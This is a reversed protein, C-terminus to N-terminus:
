GVWCQGKGGGCVELENKVAGKKGTEDRSHRKTKLRTVLKKGASNEGLKTTGGGTRGDGEERKKKVGKEGKRSEIGRRETKETKKKGMPM